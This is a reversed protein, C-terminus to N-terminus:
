ATWGLWADGASVVAIWIAVAAVPVALTWPPRTRFLAIAVALLAAWIVLLVGVAWAPVALGSIMYLFLVM